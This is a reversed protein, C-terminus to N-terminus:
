WSQLSLDVIEGQESNKQSLLRDCPATQMIFFSERKKKRM